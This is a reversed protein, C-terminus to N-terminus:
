FRRMIKRTKYAAYRDLLRYIKKIFPVGSPAIRLTEEEFEMESIHDLIKAFERLPHVLTVVAYILLTVQLLLALSVVATLTRGSWIVILIALCLIGEALVVKEIKKVFKM